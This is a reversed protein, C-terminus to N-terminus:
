KLVVGTIPSYKVISKRLVWVPVTYLYVLFLLSSVALLSSPEMLVPGARGETLLRYHFLAILVDLSFFMVIILEGKVMRGVQKALVVLLICVVLSITIYWYVM